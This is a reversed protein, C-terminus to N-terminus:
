GPGRPDPRRRIRTRIALDMDELSVSRDAHVLGSAAEIDNLVPVLVVKGDEVMFAVEDGQRLGMQKRLAAPITIQGKSTVTSTQMAIYSKTLFKIDTIRIDMYYYTGSVYVVKPAAASPM